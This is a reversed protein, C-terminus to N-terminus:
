GKMGKVLWRYIANNLRATLKTATIPDHIDYYVIQHLNKGEEIMVKYRTIPDGERQPEQYEEYFFPDIPM